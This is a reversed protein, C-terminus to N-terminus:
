SGDPSPLTVGWDREPLYAGLEGSVHSTLPSDYWARRSNGSSSRWTHFGSYATDVDVRELPWRWNTPVEIIWPYGNGDMFSRSGAEGPLGAPRDTFAESGPLHIDYEQGNRQIVLLYPDYPPTGITSAELATTLELHFRASAAYRDMDASDTNTFSSGDAPPLATSTSPFLEIRRSSGSILDEISVTEITATEEGSVFLETRLTGAATAPLGPIHVGFRSDLGAGRAILHYTGLLDKVAGDADTVLVMNYAIVADNFDADGLGPYNDEIALAHYGHSPYTTVLARTADNPYHDDTGEVGDGDPDTDSRDFVLVDTSLNEPPNAQVIFLADNFDDDSRSARNLDEFGVVLFDEGGVFDGADGSGRFRIMAVHRALEHYGAACERNLRSVTTYVGLGPSSNSSATESPATATSANWGQVASSWWGNAVLFFGIRTDVPFTAIEGSEDRLYSTDGPLLQGGSGSRSFNPFVLQRRLIEVSGDGQIRYTFYGLSNRYGAGENVFTVKVQASGDVIRLNPDYIESIYSAGANSGEPLVDGISRLLARPLSLTEDVTGRQDIAASAASRPALLGVALLAVTSSRRVSRLIARSTDVRRRAPGSPHRPSQDM